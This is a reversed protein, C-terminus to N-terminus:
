SQSTNRLTSGDVPDDSPFVHAAFALAAILVTVLGAGGGWTAILFLSRRVGLDHLGAWVCGTAAGGVTALVIASVLAVRVDRRLTGSPQGMAQTMTRPSMQSSASRWWHLIALAIVLAGLLGSAYQAWRYGDMPGHTQALWAVHRYGFRHIHTFEDWVVHTAAGVWLSLILLLVRRWRGLVSGAAASGASGASRPTPAPGLLPSAPPLRARLAAPALAVALPGVLLYWVVVSAMGLLLDIGLVGSTSHTTHSDIGLPLFYPLDPAMSGIVLASPVLGLRMLPVVAAPHSGTFPM